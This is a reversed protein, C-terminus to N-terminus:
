ILTVSYTVRIISTNYCNKVFSILNTCNLLRLMGYEDLPVDEVAIETNSEHLACRYTGLDESTLNEVHLYISGKTQQCSNPPSFASLIKYRGYVNTIERGNGNFEWKWKYSSMQQANLQNATCSLNVSGNPGM